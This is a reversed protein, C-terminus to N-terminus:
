KVPREATAYGLIHQAHKQRAALDNWSKKEKLESRRGLQLQNRSGGPDIAEWRQRINRTELENSKTRRPAEAGKARVSDRLDGGDAM